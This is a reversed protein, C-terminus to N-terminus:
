KRKRLFFYSTAAVIVVLLVVAPVEPNVKGNDIDTNNDPEIATGVGFAALDESADALLATRTCLGTSLRGESEYAYVLYERGEEFEYGCSASSIASFIKVPNSDIGKWAMSVDFTIINNDMSSMMIAPSKIDTVLGAFVADSKEMSAVPPEPMICSCAHTKPVDLVLSMVLILFVAVSLIKKM